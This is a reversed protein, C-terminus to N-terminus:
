GFTLWEPKFILLIGIISMLIGGILHSARTYKTTLGTAQLTLMAVVFVFMDDLIFFVLYGLIYLYYKWAALNNLSLVQTYVAPFGASCILEVLNVAFALLVIGGLALWFNPHATINRLKEFIKRRRETNTVKCVIEKTFIYEKLNYIGSGIAVTGIGVRIWFIFGLFLIIKLWAVMFLFYVAGSALIFAGGLIWMRKKNEMGLLLSILFVLTWMACPNFGDLLGFIVTLAPLSITKLDIEGFVPVKMKDPVDIQPSPQTASAATEASPPTAGQTQATQALAPLNLSAFLITTAFIFIIKKM